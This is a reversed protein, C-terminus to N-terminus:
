FTCWNSPASVMLEVEKALGMETLAKVSSQLNTEERLRKSRQLINEIRRKDVYGGAMEQAIAHAAGFNLGLKSVKQVLETADKADLVGVKIGRYIPHGM